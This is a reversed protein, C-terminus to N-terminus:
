LDSLEDDALERGARKGRRRDTVRAIVESIMYLASMPIALFLMTIPDTSPTALAAFVFIGVIIWPRANVLQRGSVAGIRHLLVVVLPIEAAIGFVLMMRIVFDYYE